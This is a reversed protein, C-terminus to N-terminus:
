GTSAYMVSPNGPTFVISTIALNTLLDNVKTWTAGSSTSKWMGGAVSGVFLTGATTPHLAIARTRGGINGPGLETWKTSDLGGAIGETRLADVQAKANMLANAPIAGLEDRLTMLRWAIAEGPHDPREGAEGLDETGQGPSLWALSLAVVCVGLAYKM